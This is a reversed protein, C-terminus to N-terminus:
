KSHARLLARGWYSKIWAIDAWCLTPDFQDATWSALSSLDEVGKVHGMINGFSRRQTQLM